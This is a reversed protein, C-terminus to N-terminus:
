EEQKLQELLQELQDESYQFDELISGDKFSIIGYKGEKKALIYSLNYGLLYEGQKIGLEDYFVDVTVNNNLDIIGQKGNLTVIIYDDSLFQYNEYERSIVKGQRYDYLISTKDQELLVYSDEINKKYVPCEEYGCDYYSFMLKNDEEVETVCLNGSCEYFYLKQVSLYQYHIKYDVVMILVVILVSFLCVVWIIRAFNVKKM